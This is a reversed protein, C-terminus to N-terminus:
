VAYMNPLSLNSPYSTRSPDKVMYSELPPLWCKSNCGSVKLEAGSLIHLVQSYQVLHIKETTKLCLEMYDSLHGLYWHSCAPGESAPHDYNIPIICLGRSTM